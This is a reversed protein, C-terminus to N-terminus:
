LLQLLSSASSTLFVPCLLPGLLSRTERRQSSPLPSSKCSAAHLDEPRVDLVRIFAVVSSEM